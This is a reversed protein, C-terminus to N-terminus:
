WSRQHRPPPIHPKLYKCIQDGVFQSRSGCSRWAVIVSPLRREGGLTSHWPNTNTREGIMIVIGVGNYEHKVWDGWKYYHVVPKEVGPLM